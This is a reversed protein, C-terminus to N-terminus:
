AFRCLKRAKIQAMNGAFIFFFVFTLLLIYSVARMKPIEVKEEEFGLPESKVCLYSLTKFDYYGIYEKDISVFFCTIAVALFAIVM